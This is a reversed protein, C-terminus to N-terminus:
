CSSATDLSFGRLIESTISAADALGLEGAAALDLTGPLAGMIENLKFGALAFQGQAEAAQSATFVTTRGLRAAQESLQGMQEGTARTIAQTRSLAREFDASAATAAKLGGVFKQALAVGGAVGAVAGLLKIGGSVKGLVRTAGADRGRIAIVLNEIAGM